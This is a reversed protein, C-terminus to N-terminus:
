SLYHVNPQKSDCIVTIAEKACENIRQGGGAWRPWQRKEFKPALDYQGRAGIGAIRSIETSM